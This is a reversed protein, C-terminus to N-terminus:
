KIEKKLIKTKEKYNSLTDIEHYTYGKNIYSTLHEKYYPVVFKLWDKPFRYKDEKNIFWETKKMREYFEDIDSVTFYYIEKEMNPYYDVMKTLACHTDNNLDPYEGNIIIVDRDTALFKDIYTRLSDIRSLADRACTTKINYDYPVSLLLISNDEVNLMKLQESNLVGNFFEDKKSGPLGFLWSMKKM